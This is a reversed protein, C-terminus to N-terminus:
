ARKARTSPQKNTERWQLNRHQTKAQKEDNQTTHETYGTDRSQINQIIGQPKRNRTVLITFNGKKFLIM